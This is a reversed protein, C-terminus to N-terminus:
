VAERSLGPRVGPLEMGWRAPGGGAEFRRVWAGVTSHEV